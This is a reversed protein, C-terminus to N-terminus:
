RAPKFAYWKLGAFAFLTSACIALANAPLPTVPTWNVLAYLVALNVALALLYTAAHRALEARWKGTSRFTFRKSLAFNALVGVLYGAASAALYATGSLFLAAFIAYNIATTFAGVTLHRALQAAASDGHRFKRAASEWDNM